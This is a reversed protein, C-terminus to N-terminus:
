PGADRWAGSSYFYLKNTTTDVVIPARGTYTTPIGTPAGACTSVYLFGNTANTAIAATNVIVNGNNDLRMRETRLSGTALVMASSSEAYVSATEVSATSFTLFASNATDSGITFLSYGGTGAIVQFISPAANFDFTLRTSGAFTRFYFSAADFYSGGGGGFDIFMSAAVGNVSLATAAATGTITLTSGNFTLKSSGGITNAATSYLLQNATTTTPYTATTAVWNTGDARLITGASTATSPFTATSWSPAGSAGSRLMQGATATGSLVAFASAGSYVIGGNSATLSANTGGNALPLVGTVGATLSIQSWSSVGSGNTTLAYNATGATAPLTLTWAASASNSSQVTTAFAGAATNAFVIQGQTTQQTGITLAPSVFTLNASAGFSGSSNFQVQTNLGAPTGGGGVAGFVSVGFGQNAQITM